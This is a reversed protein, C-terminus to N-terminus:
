PHSRTTTTLPLWDSPGELSSPPHPRADVRLRLDKTFGKAELGKGVKWKEQLRRLIVSDEATMCEWCAAPWPLDWPLSTQALRQSGLCVTPHYDPSQPDFNCQTFAGQLLEAEQDPIFVPSFLIRDLLWGPLWGPAWAAQAPGGHVCNAWHPACQRPRAPKGAEASRGRAMSSQQIVLQREQSAILPLSTPHTNTLKKPLGACSTNLLHLYSAPSGGAGEPTAETVADTCLFSPFSCEQVCGGTWEPSHSLFPSLASKRSM